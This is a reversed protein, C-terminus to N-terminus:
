ESEGCEWSGDPNEYWEEDFWGRHEYEVLVKAVMDGDREGKWKVRYSIMKPTGADLALALKWEWDNM